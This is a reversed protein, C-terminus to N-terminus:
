SGHECVIPPSLTGTNLTPGIAVSLSANVPAENFTYFSYQLVPSSSLNVDQVPATPPLLTVGSLTRGYGPIVAYYASAAATTKNTTFHEPEISVVGDSQVFGSFNSPLRSQTNNLTLMIQPISYQTGYRTTAAQGFPWNIGSTTAVTIVISTDGVPANAWDVTLYVRVDTQNPSGMPALTGNVISAKVYPVTTNVYFNIPESMSTRSFIDMWRYPMTM